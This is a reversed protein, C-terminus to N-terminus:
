AAPVSAKAIACGSSIPKRSVWVGVQDDGVASGDVLGRLGGARHHHPLEGLHVVAPLGEGAAIGFPVLPVESLIVRPLM